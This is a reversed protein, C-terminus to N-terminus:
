PECYTNTVGRTWNCAERQAEQEAEQRVQDEYARKWSQSSTPTPPSNGWSPATHAQSRRVGAKTQGNDGEPPPSDEYDQLLIRTGTGHPCFLFSALLFCCLILSFSPKNEM